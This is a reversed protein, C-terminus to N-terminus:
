STYKHSYKDSNILRDPLSETPSINSRIIKFGFLGRRYAWHIAVATIYMLPYLAAIGALASIFKVYSRDGVNAFNLSNVTSCFLGEALLMVADITNYIEYEKKYPQVVIIVIASPIIVFVAMNYFLAILTFVFVISLILKQLIYFGAFWRCDMTGDKGDKYYRQFTHVFDELVRFRLKCRTLCKQFCKLPYLFLLSLPFLIFVAMAMLALLAYPWHRSGWYQITADYYMYLGLSEGSASHLEVASLLDISTGFLKTTSLIYFTIFADVISHQIDWQRRFRAFFPHFPRWMCLVPRFGRAHLEVLVYAIVMLLMPYFAILYDLALVQLTNANVCIGPILARFFDLNWIGFVTIVLKVTFHISPNSNAAALMIRCQCPAVMNQAAYVFTRLKPSVVSLRLVLIITIFVTLPVYAIAVYQWWNRDMNDCTVCEMSYSYAPPVYGDICKGCLTGTRGLYGCVSNNSDALDPPVRHYVFDKYTKTVNVCNYVCPGVVAEHLASDYTVCYCDLVKVEKTKESCSVVDNISEGCHCKGTHHNLIFWTNPCFLSEFTANRRRSHHKYSPNVSLKKNNSEGSQAVCLLSMVLVLESVYKCRKIKM